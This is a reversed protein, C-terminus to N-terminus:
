LGPAGGASAGSAPAAEQGLLCGPAPRPGLPLLVMAGLFAVGAAMLYSVTFTPLADALKGAVYPGAAQGFGHFATLFGYAAPAMLPGVLDGCVVAMIAPIGWATLGFLVASAVIGATGTWLAFMAYAVAQILLISIMARKRGIWDALFGWIFGCVLSALGLIMFMNGAAEQTYGIDTTLRKTFFTMYAMYAFGFLFYAAGLHWVKGSFYIKKWSGALRVMAPPHDDPVYGPRDRLIFYSVVALVAVVGALIFWALRWGNEGYTRIIFPV